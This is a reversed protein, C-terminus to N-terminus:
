FVFRSQALDWQVRRRLRDRDRRRRRKLIGSAIMGSIGGVMLVMGTWGVPAVWGPPSSCPPSWALACSWAAGFAAFAMGTGVVTAGATSWLGIKARKVRLEMEDLTYADVTPPPSPVVEVGAEDLRLQLAPEEPSPEQLHQESTAGEEGTQASASLPLHGALACVCLLGFLYRM